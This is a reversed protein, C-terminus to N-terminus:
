STEKPVGSSGLRGHEHNIFCRECLARYIDKGGVLVVSDSESIRPCHMACKKEGCETCDAHLYYFAKLPISGAVKMVDGWPNGRFDLHLGSVVVEKGKLRWRNVAPCLDEFFQGEDIWVFEAPDVLQDVTGDLRAVKHVHPTVLGSHRLSTTPTDVGRMDIAHSIRVVVMGNSLAELALSEGKDSKGAFMTPASIVTVSGGKM